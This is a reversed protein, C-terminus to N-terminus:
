RCISITGEAPIPATASAASASATTATAAAAGRRCRGLFCRGLFCRRRGGSSGGCGCIFKFSCFMIDRRVGNTTPTKEKSHTRLHQSKAPFEPSSVKMVVGM